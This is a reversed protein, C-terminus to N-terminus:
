HDYSSQKEHKAKNITEITRSAMKSFRRYVHDDRFKSQLKPKECRSKM